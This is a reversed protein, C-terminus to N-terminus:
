LYRRLRGRFRTYIWSVGVLIAGLAIFSLTRYVSELNRLDYLFLKCACGLLLALGPLRLARDRLPFGIALLSLGELGLAMTLVRGSVQAWLFATLLATGYTSFLVRAHRDIRTFSTPDIAEHTSTLFQLAYFAAITGLAALKATDAESSSQVMNFGTFLTFLAIWHGLVRLDMLKRRTGLVQFILAAVTWLPPVPLTRECSRCDRLPLIRLVLNGSGAM